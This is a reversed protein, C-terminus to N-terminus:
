LARCTRILIDFKHAHATAGLEALLNRATELFNLAHTADFHSLEQNAWYIAVAQLQHLWNADGVKVEFVDNWFATMLHLVGEIDLTNVHSTTEKWIHGPPLSCEKLWDKGYKKRMEETVIPRLGRVVERMGSLVIDLVADLPAEQSKPSSKEVACARARTQTLKEGTLRTPPSNKLPLIAAHLIVSKDELGGIVGGHLWIHEDPGWISAFVECAIEWRLYLSFNPAVRKQSSSIQRVHSSQLACFFARPSVLRLEQCEFGPIDLGMPKSEENQIRTKCGEEQKSSSRLYEILSETVDIYERHARTGDPSWAASQAPTLGRAEIIQIKPLVNPDLVHFIVSGENLRETHISIAFREVTQENWSRFSWVGRQNWAFTITMDQGSLEYNVCGATGVFLAESQVGFETCCHPPIVENPFEVWVGDELPLLPKRGRKVSLKMTYLTLNVIRIRLSIHAKRLRTMWDVNRVNWIFDKPIIGHLSLIQTCSFPLVAKANFMEANAAFAAVLAERRSELFDHGKDTDFIEVGYKISPQDEVKERISFLSSPIPLSDDKRNRDMVSTFRSGIAQQAAVDPM